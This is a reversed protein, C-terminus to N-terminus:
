QPYLFIQTMLYVHKQFVKLYIRGLELEKTQAANVVIATDGIHFVDAVPTMPAATMMLVLAAAIIRRTTRSHQERMVIVEQSKIKKRSLYVNEGVMM